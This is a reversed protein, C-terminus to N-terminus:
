NANGGNQDKAVENYKDQLQRIHEKKSATKSKIEDLKRKYFILDKNIKETSM